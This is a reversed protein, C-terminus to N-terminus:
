EVLRRLWGAFREVANELGERYGLGYAATLMEAMKLRSLNMAEAMVRRLEAESGSGDRLAESRNVIRRLLAAEAAMYKQEIVHWVAQACEQQRETLGFQEEFVVLQSNVRMTVMADALEEATPLEGDRGDEVLDEAVVAARFIGRRYGEIGSLRGLDRLLGLLRELRDSAEPPLLEALRGAAEAITCAYRDYVAECIADVVELEPRSLGRAAPLLPLRRTGRARVRSLAANFEHESQM